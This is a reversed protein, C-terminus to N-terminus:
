MHLQTLEGHNYSFERMAQVFEARVDLYASRVKSLLNATSNMSYDKTNLFNELNESNNAYPKMWQMVMGESIVDVADAEIDFPFVQRQDDCDTLDFGTRHKFIYNFQACSRKMYNIAMQNSEDEDYQLFKYEAIKDLFDGIIKSYPTTM